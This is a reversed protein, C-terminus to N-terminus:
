WSILFIVLITTSNKCINLDPDQIMHVAYYEQRNTHTINDASDLVQM